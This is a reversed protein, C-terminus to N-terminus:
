LSFGDIMPLMIDLVILDPHWARWKELGDIGDPAVAV